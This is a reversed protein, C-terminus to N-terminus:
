WSFDRGETPERLTVFPDPEAMVQAYDTRWQALRSAFGKPAGVLQQYQAPSMLIGAAKGRRSILLPTQTTELTRLTDALHARAESFPITQMTAAGRIIYM